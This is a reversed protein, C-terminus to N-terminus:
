PNGEQRPEAKMKVLRVRDERRVMVQRSPDQTKTGYSTRETMSPLVYRSSPQYIHSMQARDGQQRGPVSPFASDLATM